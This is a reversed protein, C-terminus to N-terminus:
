RIFDTKTRQRKKRERKQAHKMEAYYNADMLFHLIWSKENSPMSIRRLTMSKHCVSYDHCIEKLILLVTLKNWNRLPFADQGSGFHFYTCTILVEFRM